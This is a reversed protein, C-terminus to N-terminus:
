LGTAAAAAAATAAAPAPFLTRTWSPGGRWHAPGAPAPPAPFIVDVLSIGSLSVRPARCM